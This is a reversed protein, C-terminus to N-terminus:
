RLRQLDLRASPEGLRYRYYRRRRARASGRRRARGMTPVAQVVRDAKGQCRTGRGLASERYTETEIYCKLPEREPITGRVNARDRRRGTEPAEGRWCSSLWAISRRTWHASACLGIKPRKGRGPFDRHNIPLRTGSLDCVVAHNC